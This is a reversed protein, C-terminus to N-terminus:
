GSVAGRCFTRRHYPSLGTEKIARFHEKTGYGKNKQWSYSPYSTSLEQMYRDRSVKAVISASAIHLSRSDGKILSKQSIRLQSITHRGDVLLLYDEKAPLESLLKQVAQSMAKETAAVIGTKDIESATSEGLKYQSIETLQIFLKQRSLASLQKSDNIQYLFPLGAKLYSTDIHLAAAYVPGVLSGRGVEDVGILAQQYNLDFDLIESM